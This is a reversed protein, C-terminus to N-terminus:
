NDENKIEQSYMENQLEYIAQGYAAAVLQTAPEILSRDLDHWEIKKTKDQM